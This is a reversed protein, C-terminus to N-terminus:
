DGSYRAAPKPTRLSKRRSSTPLKSPQQQSAPAESLPTPPPQPQKNSSPTSEKKQKKNAKKLNEYEELTYEEVVSGKVNQGSSTVLSLATTTNEAPAAAVNKLLSRPTKSSIEVETAANTPLAPSTTRSVALATTAATALPAAPSPASRRFFLFFFIVSFLAGQAAGLLFISLAEPSTAVHTATSAVTALLAGGCLVKTLMLRDLKFKLDARERRM